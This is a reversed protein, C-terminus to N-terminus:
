PIIVPLPTTVDGDPLVDAVKQAVKKFGSLLSDRVESVADKIHDFGEGRSHMAHQMKFQRYQDRLPGNPDSDKLLCMVKSMKDTGKPHISYLKRRIPSVDIILDSISYSLIIEVMTEWKYTLRSKSKMTVEYSWNLSFDVNYSYEIGYPVYAEYHFDGMPCVCLDDFYSTREYYIGSISFSDDFSSLHATGSDSRL